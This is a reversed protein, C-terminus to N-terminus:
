FLINLYKNELMTMVQRDSKNKDSYGILHLIGHIVLRKVEDSYTVSYDIAQRKAQQLNIYVDGELIDSESLPFSIVDTTGNHKLYKKNLVTIYKDDVFIVNINFKSIGEKKCVRNVLLITEKKKFRRNKCNNFVNIM